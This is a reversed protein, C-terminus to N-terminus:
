PPSSFIDKAERVAEEANRITGSKKSSSVTLKLEEALGSISRLMERAAELMEGMGSGDGGMSDMAVRVSRIAGRAEDMIGSEQLRAATGEIRRGASDLSEMMMRLNEINRVIEPQRFAELLERATSATDRIKELSGQVEPSGLERLIAVADSATEKIDRLKESM